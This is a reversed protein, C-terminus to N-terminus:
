TGNHLGGKTPCDRRKAISKRTGFTLIINSKYHLSIPRIQRRGHRSALTRDGLAHLVSVTANPTSIFPHVVLFTPPSGIEVTLEEIRMWGAIM